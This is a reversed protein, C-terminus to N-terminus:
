GRFGDKWARLVAFAEVPSAGEQLGREKMLAARVPPEDIRLFPNVARERDIRSPLTVLAEARRAAVWLCYDRLAANDPDVHRAFRCNGLTYEHTCYVATDDPLQALRQLSGLMQAPTGEFLRGCGASFLTDGCFVAGVTVYAIHSSTHGPIAWVEFDFSPSGIRLRDGEGVRRLAQPIRADEPAMVIAEPWAGCLYPVGGIHDGHHHTILITTLALGRERLWSGVPPGEGPDVVVAHRGDHLVWVYNDGLVPVAEIRCPTAADPM